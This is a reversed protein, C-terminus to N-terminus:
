KRLLDIFQDDSVDIDRLISHLMGKGIDRGFHLPITMRRGDSHKFQAHSGVQHYQFFGLRELVRVLEKVKVSPLKVM